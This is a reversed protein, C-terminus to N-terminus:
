SSIWSMDSIKMVLYRHLFLIIQKKVPRIQIWNKPPRIRHKKDPSHIQIRNIELYGQKLAVFATIHKICLSFIIFFIIAALFVLSFHFFNFSFRPLICRFRFFFTYPLTKRRGRGGRRRRASSYPPSFNSRFTSPPPAILICLIYGQM